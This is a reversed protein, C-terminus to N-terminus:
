PVSSTLNRSWVEDSDVLSANCCVRWITFFFSSLSMKANQMGNEQSADNRGYAHSCQLIVTPKVFANARLQGNAKEIM